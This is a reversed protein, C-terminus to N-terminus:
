DVLLKIGLGPSNPLVISGDALIDVSHAPDNSLFLPGDMDVYDLLPLLQAIAAIGVSSEVMCGCMVKLDLSRAKRIMRLATTLGGCKMLKINIGHFHGPMKTLDTEEKCAEDAIIPLQSHQYVAKMGEWDEAPLPQEIFEVGLKKMVKSNDITEKVTWACNADVRFIANTHQRLEQLIDLDHATGLKVKYFDFQTTKVKEVMKEIRDISLTYSTKPITNQSLDWIEWCSQQQIQGFLDHAANDFACHLFPFNALEKELFLNFKKPNDFHYSALIPRLSEAKKLLMELSVNYYAHESAEGFGRHEGKTLEVILTKRDTYTDRSITFAEKLGLTIPHLKFKM